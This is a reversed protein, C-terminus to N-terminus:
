VNIYDVSADDGDPGRPSAEKTNDYAIITYVVHYLIIAYVVSYWSIITYRLM